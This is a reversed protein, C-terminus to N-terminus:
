YNSPLTGTFRHQVQSVSRKHFGTPNHPVRNANPESFKKNLFYKELQQKLALPDKVKRASMPLYHHYDNKGSNLSTPLRKPNSNTSYQKFDDLDKILCFEDRFSALPNPIIPSPTHYYNSKEQNGNQIIDNIM